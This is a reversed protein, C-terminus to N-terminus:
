NFRVSLRLTWSRSPHAQRGTFRPPSKHCQFIQCAHLNACRRREMPQICIWRGRTQGETRFHRLCKPFFMLSRLILIFLYLVFGISVSVKQLRRQFFNSIMGTWCAAVANALVLTFILYRM